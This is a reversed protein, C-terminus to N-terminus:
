SRFPSVDKPVAPCSQTYLGPFLNRWGSTLWRQNRTVLPLTGSRPSSILRTKIVLKLATDQLTADRDANRRRVLTATNV